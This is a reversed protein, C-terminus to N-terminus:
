ASYVVYTNGLVKKKPANLLFQVFDFDFSFKCNSYNTGPDIYAISTM